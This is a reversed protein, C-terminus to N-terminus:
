CPLRREDCGNLGGENSRGLITCWAPPETNEKEGQSLFRVFKHVNFVGELMVLVVILGKPGMPPWRISM